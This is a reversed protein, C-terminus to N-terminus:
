NTLKKKLIKQQIMEKYTEAERVELMQLPQYLKNQVELFIIYLLRLQNVKKKM